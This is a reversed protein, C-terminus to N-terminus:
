KMMLAPPKEQPAFPALNILSYNINILCYRHSPSIHGKRAKEERGTQKEGEARESCLRDQFPRYVSGDRAQLSRECALLRRATSPASSALPVPPSSLHVSPRVSLSYKCTIM